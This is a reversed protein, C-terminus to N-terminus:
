WSYGLSVGLQWLIGNGYNLSTKKDKAQAEGIGLGLGFFPEIVYQEFIWKHGVEGWINILTKSVYSEEKNLYKWKLFLIDIAPAVWVGVIARNPPLYWRYSGGIGFASVPYTSIDRIIIPIRVIFSNEGSLANEYQINANADGVAFFGVPNLTIANRYNQSFSQSYFLFPVIFIIHLLKRKM